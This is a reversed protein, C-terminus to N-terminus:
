LIGVAIRIAFGRYAPSLWDTSFRVAEFGIPSSSRAHPAEVSEANDNREACHEHSTFDPASHTATKPRLSETAPWFFLDVLLKSRRFFGGDIARRYNTRRKGIQM